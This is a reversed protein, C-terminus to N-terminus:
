TEGLAAVDLAGTLRLAIPLNYTATDPQLQDFFWLRQQAFSLPLPRDRQARPITVVPTAAKLLDLLDAKRAVLESMLAPTLAEKSGRYRLRDGEVWLKVGLDQLQALFEVTTM